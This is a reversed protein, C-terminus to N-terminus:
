RKILVIQGTKLRKDRNLQNAKLFDQLDPLQFARVIESPRMRRPLRFLFVDGLQDGQAAYSEFGYDELAELTLTPAPELPTLFAPKKIVQQLPETSFLILRQGRFVENSKLRNWAKIDKISLKTTEAISTLNDGEQVIYTSKYYRPKKSQHLSSFYIPESFILQEEPSDPRQSIMYQRFTDMVRSPLTLYHGAQSQPIYGQKYAPNLAEILELPLGTVEAIRYFSHNDYVRVTETMQMDLEPYNPTLGHEEYYDILYTAAIFAPVYNRTERPLYRMLRWFNKSRARKIARSVRGSGSNYAALALAWDGFRRHQRILHVMAAETSKIPDLREDLYKNIKLGREKGTAPMFQWLGAAGVRSIATPRLASEVVSLYKLAEPLNYEKLYHEFIPFYLVTRGLINESGTRNRETYGRIYGKVARVYRVEVLDQSIHKLREQIVEDNYLDAESPAPINASITGVVLILLGSFLSRLYNATNM